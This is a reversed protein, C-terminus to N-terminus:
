YVSWIFDKLFVNCPGPSYSHIDLTVAIIFFLLKVGASSM